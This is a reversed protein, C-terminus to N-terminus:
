GAYAAGGADERGGSVSSEASGPSPPFAELSELEFRLLEVLRNGPLERELMQMSKRHRRLRKAVEEQSVDQSILFRIERVKSVKDAAYVQQAYDGKGQVRELLEQKRAEEEPISPDDSVAAVLESVDAGFRSELEGREVDTDELVDHLVAAAVVHDPCGERALLSAVESPHMLFPAGDALRRQHAHHAEAFAFAEETLPRERTFSLKPRIRFESEVPRDTQRFRTM